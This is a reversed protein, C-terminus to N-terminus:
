VVRVAPLMAPRFVVPAIIEDIVPIIPRNPLQNATAQPSAYGVEIPGVKEKIVQGSPVFDPSLSGPTVLERLAAEYTANEVEVPVEDDPIANGDYDEADTRPWEREQARGDTREGPFMSEWRGSPLLWRYRGDIYDTARELAALKVADTGTWATNGRATHYTNADALTGYISM